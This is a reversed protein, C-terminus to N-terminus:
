QTGGALKVDGSNPGLPSPVNPTASPENAPERGTVKVYTERARDLMAVDRESKLIQSMAAAVETSGEYNKLARVAALRVDRAHNLERDSLDTPAPKSAERVLFAIATQQRTQGLATLTAVQIAGAVEDPLQAAAEHASTLIQVCRPDSFRGLTQVASLRCLPQVDSVAAQSLVQLVREQEVDNGGSARPEKLARLAKAREDGDTSEHLVMMPDSTQWINRVHFNRATVDDWAGACGCVGASLAFLRLRRIWRWKLRIM